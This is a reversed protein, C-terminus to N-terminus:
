INQLLSEIEPPCFGDPYTPDYPYGNMLVRMHPMSAGLAHIRTYADDDWAGAFFNVWWGSTFHVWMYPNTQHRQPHPKFGDCSVEMRDADGWRLAVSPLMFGRHITVGATAASYSYLMGNLLFIFIVMFPAMRPTLYPMAVFIRATEMVDTTEYAVGVAVYVAAGYGVLLALPVCIPMWAWANGQVLVGPARASMLVWYCLALVLVLGYAAGWLKGSLSM